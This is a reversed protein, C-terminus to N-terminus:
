SACVHWLHLGVLTDFLPDFHGGGALDLEVLVVLAVELRVLRAVAAATQPPVVVMVPGNALLIIM